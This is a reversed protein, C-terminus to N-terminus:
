GLRNEVRAVPKEPTKNPINAAQARVVRRNRLLTSYIGHLTAHFNQSCMRGDPRDFSLCGPESLFAPRIQFRQRAGIARIHPEEALARVRRLSTCSVRVLSTRGEVPEPHPSEKHWWSQREDQAQRLVCSPEAAVIIISSRPASARDSSTNSRM